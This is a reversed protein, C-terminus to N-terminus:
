VAASPKKICFVPGANLPLLSWSSGKSDICCSQWIIQYCGELFASVDLLCTSFGQGRENAEFGVFAKVLGADGGVGHHMRGGDERMHLLLLENLDVMEDTNWPQFDLQTQEKREGNAEPLRDSAKVAVICYLKSVHIQSKPSTNKMQICLNLSLHFGRSISIRGSNRTDANFAFLEAGICPRVRFFYQPILFPMYMWKRVIDSLLQLGAQFLRCLDEENQVGKLEEQMRLVSSVAVRCVMLTAREKHGCSSIQTRSQLYSSPEGMSSLFLQLDTSTKSDIHWLREILDQILMSPSFKESKELICTIISNHGPQNRFYIAFGACFALFSCNLALRLISRFSKYDIGIFSTALLDFEKVLRKLRISIHTLNYKLSHMHQKHIPFGIRACEEVRGDENVGEGTSKMSSLLGLLDIVTELVKARLSLFWRQFYFPQDVAVAAVLTKEASRVRNYATALKERFNCLDASELDGPGVEGVSGDGNVQLGSILQIGQRPFLMLRIESEAGSFLALSELWHRCPDSKAQKILLRFTFMAAFWADQCAAYKGAKYAAWFKSEAIMKKAFELTMQEHDVWCDYHAKSSCAVLELKNLDKSRNGTTGNESGSCYWMLRSNLLLSFIMCMNHYFFGTRQICEVLLKVLNYVESTIADAEDLTELFAGVFRCLHLILDSATPDVEKGKFGMFGHCSSSPKESDIDMESVEGHAGDAEVNFATCTNVLLEISCRVSDLIMLGLTPYEGVLRLIHNLLYQCEQNVKSTAAVDPTQTLTHVSGEVHSGGHVQKALSIVEDIVLLAVRQPLPGMGDAVTRMSDEPHGRPISLQELSHCWHGRPMRKLICSIDVLLSLALSKKSVIPSKAASEVIVIMKVFEQADMDPLSPLIRSIQEHILLMSKFSLKSLSLLMEAVFEEPSSALVLKKCAKYARCAILSSCRMKAFARAAALKVDGPAGQSTVMNILMELIICAFDESLECFCGAAFLSAKVELFHRSELTSLIMHRIEASDKALDAWCGLLRLALARSKVDGTDFVIKVRKLLEIYNPVREKALIGNYLKGKKSRNKLESLFVKLVCARMHNDGSRFADALRLLIANAFLRDEGQVLGFMNSIAMSITPERSWQQLKPGIQLVSEIPQGPNKSRLGKELEISWEMACAASVREM